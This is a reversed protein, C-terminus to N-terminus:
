CFVKKNAAVVAARQTHHTGGGGITPHLGLQNADFIGEAGSNFDQLMAAEQQVVGERALSHAFWMVQLNKKEEDGYTAILEIFSKCNLM